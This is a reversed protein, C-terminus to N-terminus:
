LWPVRKLRVIIRQRHGWICWLLNKLNESLVQGFEEGLCRVHVIVRVIFHITTAMLVIQHNGYSSRANCNLSVVTPSSAISRKEVNM